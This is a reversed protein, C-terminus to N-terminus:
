EKLLVTDYLRRIDRVGDADSWQEVIRRYRPSAREARLVADVERIVREGWENKPCMLHTTIHSSMEKFPMSVLKGQADLRRSIYAARIPLEIVYDLRDDMLMKLGDIYDSHAQAPPNRQLLADITPSYARARVV